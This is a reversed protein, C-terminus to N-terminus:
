FRDLRFPSPDLEPHEHNALKLVLEATIAAQTLGLHQHGFALLLQGRPGIRDIVPLSDPLSPRFGMWKEGTTSQENPLLAQAHHALMDARRMNPPLDLGGFEVTGALRLGEEMPTMIFRREASTVPVRLANGSQPLMLHYGRETDLPISKGTLQKLLPRSWAGTALVLSSFQRPGSDLGCEVGDDVIRLRSAAQQLYRGGRATFANAITKTLRYPNTTHGTNPFLLAHRITGSLAPEMERAENGSLPISDVGCSRLTEQTARYNDFSQQKEFVLLSGELRFLEQAGIRKILRQWAPLSAENLRCLAQTGASFPQQRTNLMFRVLWPAIRHFYPARIAVPGLPDLLMGPIKWLLGPTALPLVQETAFHGANGKSCGESIGGPDILTVQYGSQQLALACSCGVIGAGLVAIERNQPKM